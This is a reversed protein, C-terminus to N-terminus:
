GVKRNEPVSGEKGGLGEWLDRGLYGKGTREQLSCGALGGMGGRSQCGARICPGAM